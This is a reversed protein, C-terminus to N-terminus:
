DVLLLFHICGRTLRHLHRFSGYVALMACPYSLYVCCSVSRVVFRFDDTTSSANMWDDKFVKPTDYFPISSNRYLHGLVPRLLPVLVSLLSPCDKIYLHKGEDKQWLDLVDRLVRESRASTKCDVVSVTRSGYRESLLAFNIGQSTQWDTFAPWDATLSAPFLCPRNELQHQLFDAYNSVYPLM